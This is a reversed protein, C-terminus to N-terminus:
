MLNPPKSLLRDSDGQLGKPDDKKLWESVNKQNPWQNIPSTFRQGGGREYQVYYEILKDKKAAALIGFIFSIESGGFASM